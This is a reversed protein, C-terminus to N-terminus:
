VNDALLPPSWRPDAKLTTISGVKDGVVGISLLEVGRVLVVVVVPIVLVLAVILLLIAEPVVLLCLKLLDHGSHTSDQTVEVERTVVGGVWLLNLLDLALLDVEGAKAEHAFRWSVIQSQSQYLHLDKRWTEERSFQWAQSHRICDPYTAKCPKEHSYFTSDQTLFNKKQSQKEEIQARHYSHWIM